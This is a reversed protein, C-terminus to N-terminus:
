DYGEQMIGCRSCMCGDQRIYFHQNGCQCEWVTEPATLGVFVGKWTGCEPCELEVSGIEAIAVWEKGCSLCKAAGSLHPRHESLNVVNSM